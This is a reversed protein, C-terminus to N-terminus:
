ARTRREEICRALAGRVRLLLGKVGAATMGLAAAVERQRLRLRYHLDLAARSRPPLAAVCDDLAALEDDAGHHREFEVLLADLDEVPVGARARRRTTRFLNRATTCLWARLAADGAPLPQGGRRRVLLRVFAEQVVDDAFAPDAGLWRVFRWV